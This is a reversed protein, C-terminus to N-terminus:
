VEACHASIAPTSTATSPSLRAIIACPWRLVTGAVMSMIIM